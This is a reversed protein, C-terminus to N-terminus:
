NNKGGCSPCFRQGPKLKSDCNTCLRNGGSEMLSEIELLGQGELFAKLIKHAVSVDLDDGESLQEGDNWHEIHTFGHSEEDAVYGQIFHETAKEEILWFEDVDILLSMLSDVDKPRDVEDGNLKLEYDIAVNIELGNYGPALKLDTLPDDEGNSLKDKSRAVELLDGELSAIQIEGCLNCFQLDSLNVNKCSLCYKPNKRMISDSPSSPASEGVSNVASVTFSYSEGIAKLRVAATYRQEEDSASPATPHTEGCETCFQLDTTNDAGCSLCYKPYKRETSQTFSSADVSVTISSDELCRVV